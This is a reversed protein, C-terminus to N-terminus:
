GGHKERHDHLAEPRFWLLFRGKGLLAREAHGRLAQHANANGARAAQRRKYNIREAACNPGSKANSENLSGGKKATLDNLLHKGNKAGVASRLGSGEAHREDKKGEQIAQGIAKLSM